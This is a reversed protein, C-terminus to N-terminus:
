PWPPRPRVAGLADQLGHQRCRGRHAQGPGVNGLPPMAELHLDGRRLDKLHVLSHGADHGGVAVRHGEAGARRPLQLPGLLGPHGELQLRAEPRGRHRTQALGAVVDERDEHILLLALGLQRVKALVDQVLIGFIGHHPVRVLLAQPGHLVACHGQAQQQLRRGQVIWIPVKVDRAIVAQLATELDMLLIRIWINAIRQGITLEEHLHPGPVEEQDEQGRQGHDEHPHGGVEEAPGDDRLVGLKRLVPAM